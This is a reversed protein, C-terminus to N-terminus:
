RVPRGLGAGRADRGRTIEKTVARDLRGAARDIAPYLDKHTEEVRLAPAGNLRASLSCRKDWGGRSGNLDELRVRVSVVRRGFRGLAFRLRREICGRVDDGIEVRVARVTIRM